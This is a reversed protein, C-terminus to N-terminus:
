GLYEIDLSINSTNIAVGDNILQISSSGNCCSVRVIGSIALSRVETTATTITTSATIAPVQNGDQALRITVDGAAPATFTATATVKYYGPRELIVSDSGLASICGCQRRLISTLPLVGGAPIAAATPTGVFISASM